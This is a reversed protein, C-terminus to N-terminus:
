SRRVNMGVWGWRNGSDSQGWLLRQHQNSMNRSALLSDSPLNKFLSGHAKLSSIEASKPNSKLLFQRSVSLDATHAYSTSCSCRVWKSALPCNRLPRHSFWCPVWAHLPCFAAKVWSLGQIFILSLGAVTRRDWGSCHTWYNLETLIESNLLHCGYQMVISVHVHQLSCFLVLSLKQIVRVVEM